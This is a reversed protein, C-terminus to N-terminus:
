TCHSFEDSIRYLCHLRGRPSIVYGKFAENHQVFGYVTFGYVTFGYAM